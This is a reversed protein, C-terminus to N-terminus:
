SLFVIDIKIYQYSLSFLSICKWYVVSDYPGTKVVLDSHGFLPPPVSRGILYSCKSWYHVVGCESGRM